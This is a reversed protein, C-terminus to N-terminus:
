RVSLRRTTGHKKKVAMIYSFVLIFEKCSVLKPVPILHGGRIYAARLYVGGGELWKFFIFAM